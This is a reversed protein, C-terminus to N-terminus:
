IGTTRFKVKAVSNGSPEQSRADNSDIIMPNPVPFNLLEDGSIWLLFCLSIQYLSWLLSFNYQFFSSLLSGPTHQHFSLAMVAWISGFKMQFDLNRICSHGRTLVKGDWSPNILLLWRVYKSQKHLPLPHESYLVRVQGRFLFIILFRTTNSFLMRSGVLHRRPVSASEHYFDLQFTQTPLIKKGNQKLLDTHTCALILSHSPSM